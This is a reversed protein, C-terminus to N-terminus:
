CGIKFLDLLSHVELSNGKVLRITKESHQSNTSDPHIVAHIPNGKALERVTAVRSPKLHFFHILTYM